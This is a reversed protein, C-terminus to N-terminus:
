DDDWDYSLLSIGPAIGKAQANEGKAGMIGALMTSQSTLPKKTFVTVQSSGPFSGRFEFHTRRVAGADILAATVGQGNVKTFEQNFENVLHNYRPGSSELPRTQAPTTEPTLHNAFAGRLALSESPSVIAAVLLALVVATFLRMMLM